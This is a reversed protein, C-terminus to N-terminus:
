CNSLCHRDFRGCNELKAEIREELNGNSKRDAKGYPKSDRTEKLDKKVKKTKPAEEQESLFSGSYSEEDSNIETIRSESQVEQRVPIYKISTKKPSKDFKTHKTHKLPNESKMKKFNKSESKKSTPAEKRKVSAM